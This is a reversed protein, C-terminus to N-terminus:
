FFFFFVIIAVLLLLSLLVYSFLIFNREVSLLTVFKTLDFNEFVLDIYNFVRM